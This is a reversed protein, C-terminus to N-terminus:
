FLLRKKQESKRELDTRKKALEAGKDPYDTLSPLIALAEDYLCGGDLEAVQKMAEDYARKLEEKDPKPEGTEIDEDDDDSGAPAAKSKAAKAKKDQEMKSALRAKELEKQYANLNHYLGSTEKVPQMINEFFGEDLEGASGKLLMPPITKTANDANHLATFLASITFNGQEDTHISMNWKGPVQMAAINEFFNTKM